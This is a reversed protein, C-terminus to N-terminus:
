SELVSPRQRGSVADGANMDPTATRALELAAREEDALALLYRRYRGAQQGNEAALWENWARSVKQASCRWAEWQVLRQRSPHQESPLPERPHSSRSAGDALRGNKRRRFLM